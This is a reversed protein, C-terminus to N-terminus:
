GGTIADQKHLFERLKRDSFKRPEALKANKDKCYFHAELWSNHQAFLSYCETGVRQFGPPCLAYMYRNRTRNNHSESKAMANGSQHPLLNQFDVGVKVSSQHYLQGRTVQVIAVCWISIFQRVGRYRNTNNTLCIFPHTPYM